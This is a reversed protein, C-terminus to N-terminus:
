NAELADLRAKVSTMETELTEITAQQEQIAKVLMPVLVSTKISKYPEEGSVEEGAEVLSPFVQEVEQAIFGLMKTDPSTRFNYNVVRLQMLEDLKSTADVVNEKLRLDSITGYTGTTNYLSGDAYFFFNGSSSTTLRLYDTGSPQGSFDFTSSPSNFRLYKSATKIEVDGGNEIRLRESGNTDFILPHNTNTGVFARTADTQLILQAGSTTNLYAKGSLYLDKWRLVSNGLDVTADSASGGTTAPLVGNDNLYIGKTSGTGGAFYVDDTAAVGISGVTTGDKYFNVIAGVSTLRNFDAVAGGDTTFHNDTSSLRAGVSGFATSTKGVLLNGSSDIRMAETFTGGGTADVSFLTNGSATQLRFGKNADNSDKLTIFPQYGNVNIADQADVTLGDATLTGTIDAGTSTTALKESNNHYLNVAGGNFARVYYNGSTNELRMNNGQIILDGSGSEVIYSHNAATDHYIQLDDSAGFKAKVNDGLSIDGRFEGSFVSFTDYVVVEVVDSAVLATLGGITNATTTNYDTGAVLAVGNLSVDVYNGDTFTLTNSNDDTGSLSTEGGSATFYYRSRVAQSPTKGLYAM